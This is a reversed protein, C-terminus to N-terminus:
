SEGGEQAWPAGELTTRVLAGLTVGRREAEREYAERVPRPLRTQVRLTGREDETLNPGSRSKPKRKTM